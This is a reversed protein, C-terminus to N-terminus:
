ASESQNNKSKQGFLFSVVILILNQLADPVTKEQLWLFCASGVLIIAIIGAYNESIAKFFLSFPNTEPNRM